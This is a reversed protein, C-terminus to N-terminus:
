PCDVDIIILSRRNQFDKALAQTAGQMIATKEAPLKALFEPKLKSVNRQLNVYNGLIYSPYKGKSLMLLPVLLNSSKM